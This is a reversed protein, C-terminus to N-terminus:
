KFIRGDLGQIGVKRLSCKVKNQHIHNSTGPHSDISTRVQRMDMAVVLLAASHLRLLRVSYDLNM